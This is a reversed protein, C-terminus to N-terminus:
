WCPTATLRAVSVLELKGYGPNTASTAITGLTQLTQTTTGAGSTVLSLTVNGSYGALRGYVFYKGAPYNRTYNAWQGTTALTGITVPQTDLCRFM